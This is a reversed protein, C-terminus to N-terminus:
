KGVMRRVEEIDSTRQEVGNCTVIFLPVQIIGYERALRPEKDIDHRIVKVGDRELQDLSPKARQCPQCWVATFATVTVVPQVVPQAVPTSHQPSPALIVLLVAMCVLIIVRELISM